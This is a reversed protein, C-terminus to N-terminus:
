RRNLRCAPPRCPSIGAPRRQRRPWARGAPLSLALMGGVPQRGHEIQDPDGLGVRAHHRQGRDIQRDPRALHDAQDALVAGALRRQHLDQAAHHRRGGARDPQIALVPWRQAHGLRQRAADGEDVLLEVQELVQVDGAVDQDAALRELGPREPQDVPAGHVPPDLRDQGPQAGIEARRRGQGAQRKGLHLQDLDGLREREVGAEHDHVLWGRAQGHGLRLAQELHDALQLRAADAHDEDRVAQVLDLAAAVPDHHQAVALDDAAQGPRLDAM